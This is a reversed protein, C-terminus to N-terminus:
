RAPRVPIDFHLVEERTGLKEYLAIAAADGPGTDAQVYIVWAGRVAAIRQLERILATAIGQRRQASLVALDYIYFESRPQEFKKLEYAALGGVVSDDLVAALAIFSDSAMLNRLYADDPQNSGYSDADDFAAGFCDLLGRFLPLDAGTLRRISAIM